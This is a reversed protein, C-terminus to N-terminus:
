KRWALYHNFHNMKFVGREEFGVIEDKLRGRTRFHREQITFIHANTVNLEHKLSHIKRGLGSANASFMGLITNSNKHKSTKSNKNHKITKYIKKTSAPIVNIM